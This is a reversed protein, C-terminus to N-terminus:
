FFSRSIRNMGLLNDFEKKEKLSANKYEEATLLADPSLEMKKGDQDILLIFNKDKGVVTLEKVNYFASSNKIIVVDGNNFLNMRPNKPEKKLEKIENSLNDNRSKLEEIEKEYESNLKRVKYLLFILLLVVFILVVFEIFCVLLPIQKAFISKIVPIKASFRGVISVLVVCIASSIVSSWVSDNWLKSIFSILRMM